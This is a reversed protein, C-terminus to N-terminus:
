LYLTDSLTWWYQNYTPMVIDLFVRFIGGLDGFIGMKVGRVAEM